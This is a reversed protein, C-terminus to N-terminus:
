LSLGESRDRMPPQRDLTRTPELFENALRHQASRSLARTLRV